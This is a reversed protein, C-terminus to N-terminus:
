PRVAGEPKKRPRGGRVAFQVAWYVGVTVGAGVAAAGVLVLLDFDWLGTM